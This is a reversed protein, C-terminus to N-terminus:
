RLPLLNALNLELYVSIFFQARGTCRVHLGLIFGDTTDVFHEEFPYGRTRVIDEANGDAALDEAPQFRRELWHIESVHTLVFLTL